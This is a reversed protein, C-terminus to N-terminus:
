NMEIYKKMDVKSTARLGKWNFASWWHWQIEKYGCTDTIVKVQMGDGGNKEKTVIVNADLVANYGIATPIIEYGNEKYVKKMEVSNFVTNPSVIHAVTLFACAFDDELILNSIKDM